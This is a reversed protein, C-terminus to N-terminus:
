IFIQEETEAMIVEGDYQELKEKYSMVLENDDCLDMYETICDEFEVLHQHGDFNVIRSTTQNKLNQLQDIQINIDTFTDNRARKRPHHYRRHRLVAAHSSFQVGCFPCIRALLKKKDQFQENYYDMTIEKPMRINVAMILSLEAFHYGKKLQTPDHLEIKPANNVFVVPPPM